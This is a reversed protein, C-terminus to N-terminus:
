ASISNFSSTLGSTLNNWMAVVSDRAAPIALVVIGAALALLGATVVFGDIGKRDRM